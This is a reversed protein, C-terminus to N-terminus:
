AGKKTKLSEMIELEQPQAEGEENMVKKIAFPLITNLENVFDDISSDIEKHSYQVNEMDFQEIM